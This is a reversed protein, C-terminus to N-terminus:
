ELKLAEKGPEDTKDETDDAGVPLIETVEDAVAVDFDTADAEVEADAAKDVVEVLVVDAATAADDVALLTAEIVIGVTPATDVPTGEVAVAVTDATAAPCAAAVAM